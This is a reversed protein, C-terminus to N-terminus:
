LAAIKENVAALEDNLQDLVIKRVADQEKVRVGLFSVNNGNHVTIFAAKIEEIKKETAAKTDFLAKATNFRDTLAVFDEQTM